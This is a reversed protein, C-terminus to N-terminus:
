RERMAKSAVDVLRAFLYELTRRGGTVAMGFTV